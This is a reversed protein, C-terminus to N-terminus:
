EMIKGHHEARKCLTQLVFRLHSEILIKYVSSSVYYYTFHFALCRLKCCRKSSTVCRARAVKVTEEM